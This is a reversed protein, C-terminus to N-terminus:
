IDREGNLVKDFQRRAEEEDKMGCDFCVWAGNKGYPRLEDKNGCDSCIAPATSEILVVDKTIRKTMCEGIEALLDSFRVLRNARGNNILLSGDVM